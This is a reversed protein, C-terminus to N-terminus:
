VGTIITIIFTALLFACGVIIFSIYYNSKRERIQNSAAKYESFNNFENPNKSFIQSGMQKFGYSFIDFFGQRAVYMLLGLAILIIATISFGDSLPKKFAFFILCTSGIGLILSIIGSIIYPKLNIKEEM